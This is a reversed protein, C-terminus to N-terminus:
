SATQGAKEQRNATWTNYWAASFIVTAGFWTWFDSVHGFVFWAATASFVLRLFDIPALASAEAFQYARMLCIHSTAGFVGIVAIWGLHYWEPAVWWFISAIGTPVLIMLNMYFTTLEATETDAFMRSIAHNGAYLAASVLVFVVAINFETLGPRVIILIGCFGAITAILRSAIIKEKLFIWAFVVLFLPLTFHLATADGIPLVALAAFWFLMGAGMLLSRLAHWKLKYTRLGPLGVRILWPVFILVGFLVRFFVIEVPQMGDDALARVGIGIASFSMASLLMWCVGTLLPSM